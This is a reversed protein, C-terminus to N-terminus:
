CDKIADAVLSIPTPPSVRELKHATSRPSVTPIMPRLPDTGRNREAATPERGHPQGLLNRSVRLQAERGHLEEREVRVAAECVFAHRGAEAVLERLSATLPGSAAAHPLAIHMERESQAMSTALLFFILLNFLVDVMPVFDIHTDARPDANRILM